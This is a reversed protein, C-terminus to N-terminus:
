MPLSHSHTRAASVTEGEETILRDLPDILRTIWRSGNSHEALAVLIYTHGDNEVIASDSHWKRWSGSKRYIRADPDHSLGLVFKHHLGPNSLVSKMQASREPSVLRGTELLYYFRATQMATAGHSLNALPDRRWVGRKAYDKGVWLGGNSEPDYLRYRDSQLIEALRAKGVRNLVSTAAANSSVRIMDIIERETESDLPMGGREIEEFAGLLIAIKPLSAAYVMRDGNVSAVRPKEVDTVDVLAVALQRSRVAAELGMKALVNELGTQLKVDRSQQLTPYDAAFAPTAAFIQILLVITALIRPGPM